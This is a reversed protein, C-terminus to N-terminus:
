APASRRGPSAAATRACRTRRLGSSAPSRGATWRAATCDAAAAARAARTARRTREVDRAAPVEGDGEANALRKPREPPTDAPTLPPCRTSCTSTAATAAIRRARKKWSRSCSRACKILSREPRRGVRRAAAWAAHPPGRPTGRGVRRAAAAWVAAAAGWRGAPLARPPVHGTGRCATDMEAAGTRRVSVRVSDSGSPRTFPRTLIIKYSVTQYPTIRCCVFKPASLLM